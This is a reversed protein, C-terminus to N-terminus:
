RLENRKFILNGGATHVLSYGDDIFRQIIPVPREPIGITSYELIVVSPSHKELDLGDWVDMETGETDISLVDVHGVGADDLISNLTRIPVHIRHGNTRLIGSVTPENEQVFESTGNYNGCACVFLRGKRHTEIEEHLAPNPEVLIVQWGREEFYLSNSYQQWRGVGVEVMVGHDPLSINEAIFRDEGSHSYYNVSSERQHGGAEGTRM